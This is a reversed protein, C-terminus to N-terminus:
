LVINPKVDVVGTDLSKIALQTKTEQVDDTFCCFPFSSKKIDGTKYEVLYWITDFASDFLIVCQDAVLKDVKTSTYLVYNILAKIICKMYKKPIKIMSLTAIVELSTTVLLLVGAGNHYKNIFDELTTKCRNYVEPLNLLQRMVLDVNKNEDPDSSTLIKDKLEIYRKCEVSDQKVVAAM